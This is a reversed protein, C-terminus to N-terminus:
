LAAERVMERLRSRYHDEEQPERSQKLARVWPHLRQRLQRLDDRALLRTQAYLEALFPALEREQRWNVYDQWCAELAQQAAGLRQGRHHRQQELKQHLAQLPWLSVGTQTGLQADINSPMALDALAWATSRHLVHEPRLVPQPAATCVVIGEAWQLAPILQQWSEVCLRTEPQASRNIVRVQEARRHRLQRVVSQGLQGHGIVLWRTQQVSQGLEQALTELALSELSQAGQAIGTQHRVQRGAALAHAFLGNLRQGSYHLSRASEWARRLQGAIETEGPTLSDLGAAVEFLHRAAADDRYCASPGVEARDKAWANFFALAQDPHQAVAYIEFRQCTSVLMLEDLSAQYVQTLMHPLADYAIALRDRQRTSISENKLSWCILTM